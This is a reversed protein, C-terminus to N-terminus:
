EARAALRPKRVTVGRRRTASNGVIANSAVNPRKKASLRAAADDTNRLPRPMSTTATM